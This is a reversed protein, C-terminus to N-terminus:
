LSFQARFIRSTSWPRGADARREPDDLRERVLNFQLKLYRVPYWNIGGTWSLFDNGLVHAARPNRFPEDSSADSGFGLAEVRGALQIAGAGGGFLPHRPATGGSRLDGLALWAGSVYWGDAVLDPLDDGALGQGRREDWSRLYEARLAVPGHVLTADVGVRQRTGAVYIPEFGEFGGATRLRPSHLGETLDGRTYGAGAEIRQLLRHRSAAFPSVVVRGALTKGGAWPAGEDPSGSGDHRFAGALYSLADGFRGFLQVGTDREPTLTDTVVSRGVFDIERISTLREAGFPIKLRGARVRLARYKRFDAHVDRWPEDDDALDRVVEFAFVGFLRGDVGIRRRPFDADSDDGDTGHWTFDVLSTLDLRLVDGFRLSPRDDMVFAWRADQKATSSASQASAFTATLVLLTAAIVATSLRSSVPTM